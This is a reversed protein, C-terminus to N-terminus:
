LKQATGTRIAQDIVTDLERQMVQSAAEQKRALVEQQRALPEQERALAEQRKALAEQEKSLAEMQRDHEAEDSSQGNRAAARAQAARGTALSALRIGLEGQRMGLEGQREGLAGQREGLEGQQRGLAEIPAHLSKLRALTAADRVVYQTGDRRIWLLPEGDRQLSRVKAIDDSDGNMTVQKGSLLVYSDQGGRSNGISFSSVSHSSSLSVPPPAPPAPPASTPPAPPAPPPPMDSANAVRKPGAAVVRVPASVPAPSAAAAARAAPTAPTAPAAHAAPTAHTAPTASAATTMATAPTSSATVRYPVAGLLVVGFTLALASARLPTATSQLMLLRRKLTRFTPSAGALAPAPTTSVGLQVLLRGYDQPAHRADAMVAADCAAERAFAYERAALHAVPHFFFLHQALAPVWGWWLDGRRHHMLEHHLAMRLEDARLRGLMRSPLLLVPRWPGILQPSDIDDSIRLAPLHRIGLEAGLLLHIAEVAPTTCARSARVSRRVQMFGAISRALWALVGACWAALLLLPWSFAGSATAIPTSTTAVSSTAAPADFAHAPVAQAGDHVILVPAPEAPLLPLNVASPWLLGVMMQTAVLWWLWCRTRADLRPLYRCLAWVLAGLVLVQVSAHLLRSLVLEAWAVIDM